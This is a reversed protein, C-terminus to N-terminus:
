APLTQVAIPFANSSGASNVVYARLPYMTDPRFPGVSTTVPPRAPSDQVPFTQTIYPSGDIVFSIIPCRNVSYLPLSWSLDVYTANPRVSILVPISLNAPPYKYNVLAIPGESVINYIAMVGFQYDGCPILNDIVISNNQTYVDRPVYWEDRIVIRFTRACHAFKEDVEWELYLSENQQTATFYNITLNAGSPAPIYDELFVSDSIQNQSHARVEFQFMECAPLFSVNLYTEQTSYIYHLNDETRIYIIYETQVCNISPEWYLTYNLDLTVNKVNDPICIQAQARHFVIFILFSLIRFM